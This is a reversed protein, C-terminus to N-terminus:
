GDAPFYSKIKKELVEDDVPKVIYDGIGEKIALQISEADNAATILMFHAKDLHNKERLIKYVEIGSKEPMNWDCLILHHPAESNQVMNIAEKGNEALDTHKIGIDELIGKLLEASEPNDEAILARVESLSLDPHFVQIKKAAKGKSAHKYYPAMKANLEGNINKNGNKQQAASEKLNAEPTVTAAKDTNSKALKQIASNLQQISTKLQEQQPEKQSQKILWQHRHSLTEIVVVLEQKTLSTMNLVM